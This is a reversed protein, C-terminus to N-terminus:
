VFCRLLVPVHVTLSLSIDEESCSCKTSSHSRFIQGFQPLFMGSPERTPLPFFASRPNQLRSQKAPYRLISSISLAFLTAAKAARWRSEYVIFVGVRSRRACGRGSDFAAPIRGECVMRVKTSAFRIM